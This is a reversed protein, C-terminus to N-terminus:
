RPLFPSLPPLLSTYPLAIPKRSLPRALFPAPVPSMAGLWRHM